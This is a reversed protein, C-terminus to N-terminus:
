DSRGNADKSVYMRLEAAVHAFASQWDNLGSQRFLRMSPYWPSDARNRLWRWDAAYPLLTWVPVGLAGAIHVTANDVSIVLDLATIQAAFDDLNRLPDADNWDHVIVGHRHKFDALENKCDGYQLNIFQVNGTNLIDCWQDLVTSRQQKVRRKKGGRWSIGVKIGGDIAVYRARWKELQESNAVLYGRYMPFHGVESRFLGPLSGLPIYMDAPRPVSALSEGTGIVTADTFSRAFLPKLRPECEIICRDVRDKAQSLCSAFMIQDGVGQEACVLLCKETQPDGNWRPLSVSRVAREGVPFGWEYERWGDALRGLTLRLLARDWHAEAFESNINLAQDFAVLAQEPDGHMEYLKGMNYCARAYAPKMDLARRYCSLAEDHDGLEALTNGLNNSAEAWQPQLSVARRYNDMASDFKEQLEQARALNFYAESREPQLSIVRRGCHEAEAYDGLLGNIMGLMFWADADHKDQDCVRAYLERAEELRGDQYCAYARQKKGRTLINNKKM